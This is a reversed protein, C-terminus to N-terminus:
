TKTLQRSLLKVTLAILLLALMEFNRLASEHQWTAYNGDQAKRISFIGGDCHSACSFFAFILFSSLYFSKIPQARGSRSGTNVDGPHHSHFCRPIGRPSYCLPSGLSVTDRQFAAWVQIYISFRAETQKEQRGSNTKYSCVKNGTM